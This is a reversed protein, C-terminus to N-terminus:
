QANVKTLSDVKSSLEKIASILFPTIQRYDVGLSCPIGSIDYEEGRVLHSTDEIAKLEQALFGTEWM